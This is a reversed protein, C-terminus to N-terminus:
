WGFRRLAGGWNGWVGVEGDGFEDELIRVCRGRIRGRKLECGFRRLEQGSRLSWIVIREEEDMGAVLGVGAHVDLGLNMSARNSYPFTLLPISPSPFSKDDPDKRQRHRKRKLTRNSTKQQPMRFDYLFLTHSLGSCVLRTFDDARRIQTIPTPHTLILTSGRSRTDYLYISGNRCGLSISTPSLWELALIDTDLKLATESGWSGAENLTLVMLTTQAAVAVIELAAAPISSPNIPSESLSHPRPSSTWITAIGRPTFQEAVGPPDICPNSLHIAAPREGGLSTVLLTRSLPLYHVSSIESTLKNIPSSFKMANYCRLKSPQSNSLSHHTSTDRDLSRVSGDNYGLYLTGSSPDRDWYLPQTEAIAIGTKLGSAIAGPWHNQVSFSTRAHHGIERQLSSIEFSTLCKYSARVTEKVIQQHRKSKQAETKKDKTLKRINDANYKSTPALHAAEIKFYKKKEEDYYYGPIERGNM